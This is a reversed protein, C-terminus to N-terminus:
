GFCCDSQDQDWSCIGNYSGARMEFLVCIPSLSFMNMQRALRLDGINYSQMVLEGNNDQVSHGVLPMNCKWDNIMNVWNDICVQPTSYKWYIGPVKVYDLDKFNEAFKEANAGEKSYDIEQYLVWRILVNAQLSQVM